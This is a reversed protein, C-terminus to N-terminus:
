NTAPRQNWAWNTMKGLLVTASVFATVFIPDVASATVDIETANKLDVYGQEDNIDAVGTGVTFKWTGFEDVEIPVKTELAYDDDAAVITTGLSGLVRETSASAAVFTNSSNDENPAVLSRFAFATSAPKAFPESRRLATPKVLSVTAMTPPHSTSSVRNRQSEQM